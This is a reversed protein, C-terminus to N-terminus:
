WCLLHTPFYFLTHSRRHRLWIWLYVCFDKGNPNNPQYPHATLDAWVEHFQSFGKWSGLLTNQHLRLLHLMWMDTPTLHCFWPWQPWKWHWYQIHCDEYQQYPPYWGAGVPQCCRCCFWPPPYEMFHAQTFLRHRLQRHLRHLAPLDLQHSGQNCVM